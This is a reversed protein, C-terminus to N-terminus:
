FYSKIFSLDITSFIIETNLSLFNNIHLQNFSFNIYNEDNTLYVFSFM